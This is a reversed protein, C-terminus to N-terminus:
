AEFTRRLFALKKRASGLYFANPYGCRFIRCLVNEESLNDLSSRLTLDNEFHM